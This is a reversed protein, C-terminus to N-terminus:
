SSLHLDLHVCTKPMTVSTCHELGLNTLILSGTFYAPSILKDFLPFLPTLSSHPLQSISHFPSLFHFSPSVLIYPIHVLLDTIVVVAAKWENGEKIRVNNYGWRLDPKM